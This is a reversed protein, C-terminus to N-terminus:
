SQLKGKDQAAHVIRVVLVSDESVRYLIQHTRFGKIRWIRLGRTKLSQFYGDCSVGVFPMEALLAFTAQAADLFRLAAETSDNAIHGAFHDLDDSAAPQIQLARIM